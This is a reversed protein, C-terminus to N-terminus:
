DMAGSVVMGEFGHLFVADFHYRGRKIVFINFQELFDNPLEPFATGNCVAAAPDMDMYVARVMRRLGEFPEYGKHNSPLVQNVFGKLNGLPFLVPAPFDVSIDQIFHFLQWFQCLGVCFTDPVARCIVAVGAADAMGVIVLGAVVTDVQVAIKGFAGYFEPKEVAREVGPFDLCIDLKAKRHGGPCDSGPVLHHETRHLAIGGALLDCDHPIDQCVPEPQKTVFKLGAPQM